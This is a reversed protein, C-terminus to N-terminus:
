LRLRVSFVIIFYKNEKMTWANLKNIVRLWIWEDNVTFIEVWFGHLAVSMKICRMFCIDSFFLLLKPACILFVFRSNPRYLIICFLHLFFSFFSSPSYLAFSLFLGQFSLPLLLLTFFSPFTLFSSLFPLLFFPFVFLVFIIVPFLFSPLSFPVFSPFFSSFSFSSIFDHLFTLLPFNSFYFLFLDFTLPCYFLLPHLFKHNEELKLNNYINGWLHWISICSKSRQNEQIIFLYALRHFM